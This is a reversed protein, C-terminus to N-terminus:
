FCRLVNVDGKGWVDGFRKERRELFCLAAMVRFIVRRIAGSIAIKKWIFFDDLEDFDQILV